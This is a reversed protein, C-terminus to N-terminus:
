YASAGLVWVNSFDRKALRDNEIWFYMLGDMNWFATNLGPVPALQLLLRWSEHAREVLTRTYSNWSEYPQIMLDYFFDSSQGSAVVDCQVAMLDHHIILPHGLLQHSFSAADDRIKAYGKFEVKSLDLRELVVSDQEITAVSSFAPQCAELKANPLSNSVPQTRHLAEGNADQFLIQWGGRDTPDLGWPQNLFDYFFYLMGSSPLAKEADYPAVEALNFQALFGLPKGDREPWAMDPPLDPRGGLKSAGIPITEEDVMQPEIRIAPLTLREAVDALRELGASRLAERIEDLTM